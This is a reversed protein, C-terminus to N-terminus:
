ATVELLPQTTAWVRLRVAAAPLPAPPTVFRALLDAHRDAQLGGDTVAPWGGVLSVPAALLVALAHGPDVYRGPRTVWDLITQGLALRTRHDYRGPTRALAPGIAYAMAGIAAAALTRPAAVTLPIAPGAIQAADDLAVCLSGTLLNRRAPQQLLGRVTVYLEAISAPDPPQVPRLTGTLESALVTHVGDHYAPRGDVTTSYWCVGCDDVLRQHM